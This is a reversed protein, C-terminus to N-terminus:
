ATAHKSGVDTSNCWDPVKSPRGVSQAVEQLGKGLEQETRLQFIVLPMPM